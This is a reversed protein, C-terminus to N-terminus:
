RMGLSPAFKESAAAFLREKLLYLPAAAELVVERGARSIEWDFQESLAIRAFISLAREALGASEEDLFRVRASAKVRSDALDFWAFLSEAREFARTFTREGGFEKMRGLRATVSVIGREPPEDVRESRGEELSRSLADVETESALLWREEHLTYLRLPAARGSNALADYRKYGGGLDLSPGWALSIEETTISSFDGELITVSDWRSPDLDPRLGMWLRDTCAIAQLVLAGLERAPAILLRALAEAGRIDLRRRIKELDVRVVVDLDVPIQQAPPRTVPASVGVKPGLRACGLM